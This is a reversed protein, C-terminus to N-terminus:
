QRRVKGTGVRLTFGDSISLIVKLGFWHPPRGQVRPIRIRTFSTSSRRAAPPWELSIDAARRGAIASQFHWIAQSILNSIIQAQSFYFLFLLRSTKVVAFSKLAGSKAANVPSHSTSAMRSQVQWPPTGM